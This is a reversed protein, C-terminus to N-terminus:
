PGCQATISADGDLGSFVPLGSAADNGTQGSGVFRIENGQVTSTGFVRGWPLAAKMAEDNARIRAGMEDFKAAVEEAPLGEMAEIPYEAQIAAGRAGWHAAHDQQIKNQAQLPSLASVEPALETLLLDFHDPRQGSAQERNAVKHLLLVAPKGRFTGVATVEAELVIQGSARSGTNCYTAEFVTQQGAVTLIVTGDGDARAAVNQLSAFASLSLAITTIAVTTALRRM